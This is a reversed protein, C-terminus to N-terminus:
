CSFQCIQRETPMKLHLNVLLNLQKYDIERDFFAPLRGSTAPIKQASCPVAPSAWFKKPLAGQLVVFGM